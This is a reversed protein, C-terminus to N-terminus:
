RGSPRPRIRRIDEERWMSLLQVAWETGEHIRLNGLLTTSLIDNPGKARFLRVREHETIVITGPVDTPKPVWDDDTYERM